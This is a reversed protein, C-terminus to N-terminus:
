AASSVRTYRRFRHAVKAVALATYVPKGDENVGARELYGRREWTRIREVPVEAGCAASAVESAEARTLLMEPSTVTLLKMVGPVHSIGESGAFGCTSPM